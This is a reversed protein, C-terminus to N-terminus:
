GFVVTAFVDGAENELVVQTKGDKSANTVIIRNGLKAQMKYEVYMEKIAFEKPLAAMAGDIYYLNNMHGNTDVHMPSVEFEYAVQRGDWLEIKRDPWLIDLPEDEGFAEKMEKSIRVPAEKELNMLIWMSNAEAYVKGSEDKLIFNRNGFPGKLQYPRTEVVVNEGYYPKEYIHVQWSILFWGMHNGLMRELGFGIDESQFTCCNQFENIMGTETMYADAGIDNYPVRIKMEYM